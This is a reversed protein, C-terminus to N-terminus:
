KGPSAEAELLLVEQPRGGKDARVIRYTTGGQAPVVLFLRNDLGHGEIEYLRRGGKLRDEAKVEEFTVRLERGRMATSIGTFDGFWDFEKFNPDLSLTGEGGGKGDLTASLHVSRWGLLGHGYGSSLSLRTGTDKGDAGRVGPGLVGVSAAASALVLALALSSWKAM